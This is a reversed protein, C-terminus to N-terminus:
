KRINWTICNLIGGDNAIENSDITAITQGDFIKEFQKVVEDDEKFGFTPIIISNEMQLYNIYDGNAQDDHKNDYVNYPIKIYDLGTKHIASEFAKYFWEEERKFDNVVLTNADKFRVMGDSHGTFDNPQEPIFYLKDVQLFEHLKKILAKREYNPNEAFVRDTMIVKDTTKTVNGGELLIDTKLSKIGIENCISDINSITKLLKKTQLYWPNYTFQVFNDTGTQIPMYDVAWVDKTDPMMSFPIKNEILLKEFRKFFDGYKKPLTDALYLFNTQSDPIM